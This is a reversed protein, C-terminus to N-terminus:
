RRSRLRRRHSGAVDVQEEERERVGEGTELAEHSRVKPQHGGEGLSQVPYRVLEPLLPGVEDAGHGPEEPIPVSPDQGVDLGARAEPPRDEGPRNADPPPTPAPLGPPRGRGPEPDLVGHRASEDERLEALGQASPQAEGPRTARRKRPFAGLEEVCEPDQDELSVPEALCARHQREVARIAEPEARHPQGERADLELERCVALDQGPGFTAVPAVPLPGLRRRLGQSRGSAEVPSTPRISSSAEDEDPGFFSRITVGAAGMAGCVISLRSLASGSTPSAM